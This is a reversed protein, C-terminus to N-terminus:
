YTALNGSMIPFDETDSDYAGSKSAAPEDVRPELTNIVAEDSEQRAEEGGDLAAANSAIRIDFESQIQGLSATLKQASAKTGELIGV